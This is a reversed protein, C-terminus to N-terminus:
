VHGRIRLGANPHDASWDPHLADAQRPVVQIFEKILMQKLRGLM